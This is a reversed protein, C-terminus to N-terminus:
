KALWGLSSREGPLVRLQRTSDGVVLVVVEVELLIHGGVVTDDSAVVWKHHFPVGFHPSFIQELHQHMHAVSIFYRIITNFILYHNLLFIFYFDYFLYM